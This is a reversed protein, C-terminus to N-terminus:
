LFANYVDMQHIHCKKSAALSVTRVTVIKVVPSFTEQYNIGEKKSYGKAVLRAKFRKIEENAKYKIKYIWKCGITSKEKPLQVIQWTNNNELATIEEKMAQVWRPDQMAESYNKPETTSSFVVVYAQYKPSLTDYSLYKNLAYPTDEHINLSVFDKM